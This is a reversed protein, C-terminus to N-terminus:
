VSIKGPDTSGSTSSASSAQSPEQGRQLAAAQRAKPHQPAESGSLPLSGGCEMTRQAGPQALGKQLARRIGHPQDRRHRHATDTKGEKQARKEALLREEEELRDLEADM